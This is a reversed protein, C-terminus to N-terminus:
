LCIFLYVFVYSVYGVLIFDYFIYIYIRKMSMLQMILFMEVLREISKM